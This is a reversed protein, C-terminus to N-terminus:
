SVVDTHDFDNGTAVPTLESCNALSRQLSTDKSYFVAAVSLQSSCCCISMSSIFNVGLIACVCHDFLEFMDFM